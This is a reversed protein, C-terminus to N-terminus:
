VALEESFFRAWWNTTSSGSRLKNEVRTPYVGSREAIEVGENNRDDAAGNPPLFDLWDEIEM